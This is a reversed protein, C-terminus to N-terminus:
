LGRVVVDKLYPNNLNLMEGVKAKGDSIFRASLPKNYKNSFSQLCKLIQLVREPSEDIGIPYTDIGLGCHLSLYINREISFEGKEYLDALHFDELCPYMLGNLGIPKPNKTKLFETLKMLSESTFVHQLDGLQSLHYFLSSQGEYLPAISADIGLFDNHDQTIHQIEDWVSKISECWEEVTSGQFSDTCQLGVGVGNQGYVASPFFPSNTVNNFTYSFNFTRSPCRQIIDFLVQVVQSTIKQQSLELNFSIPKDALLCEHHNSWDDCTLQGVSLLLDDPCEFELLRDLNQLTTCFRTTQIQYQKKEFLGRYAQIQNLVNSDVSDSFVCLTRIM